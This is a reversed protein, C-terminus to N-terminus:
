RFLRIGTTSETYKFYWYLKRNVEIGYDADPRYNIPSNITGSYKGTRYYNDWNGAAIMNKARYMENSLDDSPKYNLLYWQDFGPDIVTIEYEASDQGGHTLVASTKSAEKSPSCAWVLLALIGALYCRSM